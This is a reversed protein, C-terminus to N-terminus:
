DKLLDIILRLVNTLKGAEIGGMKAINELADLDLKGARQQQKATDILTQVTEHAIKSKAATGTVTERLLETKLDDWEYNEIYRNMRFDAEARRTGERIDAEVTASRAQALQLATNAKVNQIQAATAMAQAATGKTWTPDFEPRVTPASVSPTAAGAGTAALIRNFGAAEIDNARRQVATNALEKEWERQERALQITTKNAKAASSAGKNAGYVESGIGILLAGIGLAM